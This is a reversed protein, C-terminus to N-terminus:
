LEAIADTRAGKLADIISVPEGKANGECFCGVYRAAICSVM